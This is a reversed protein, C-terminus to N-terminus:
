KLPTLKIDKYQIKMPPGAHLQLALIGEMVADKSSEDITESMLTGNIVHTMTTGKATVKFHNWEGKGKVSAQLAKGDAFQETKTKAKGDGLWARQGRQALIDRGTKEGYNIGTYTSGTEVDAQYGAVVHNGLDKSRYQVGSNGSDSLFRYTFELEFDSVTGKKWILFTNGKLKNADTSEGTIAGDEVRWYGEAGEWGDLTKGDFLSITDAAFLPACAALLALTAHRVFSLSM